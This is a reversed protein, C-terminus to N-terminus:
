EVGTAALEAGHGQRLRDTRGDLDFSSCCPAPRSAYAPDPLDRSVEEAHDPDSEPLHDGAWMPEDQRDVGGWAVMDDLDSRDARGAIVLDVKQRLVVNGARCPVCIGCSEDVFFQMFDRVVDLLDREHTSSWSRVTAPSITSLSGATPTPPKASVMEGSPGSIQVARPITPALWRSYRVGPHHGMRGRLDGARHLRRRRQAVQHRDVGTNGDGCVLRRGAAHDSHGRRVDRRQQRLTPKGLFGNEVPFPPKLRPTGRKGECSEILASEDGCIYAGAGLQIRIDFGHGLSGDVRLEALQANSISESIRM